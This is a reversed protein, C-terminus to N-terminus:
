PKGTVKLNKPLGLFAGVHTRKFWPNEDADFIIEMAGAPLEHFLSLCM